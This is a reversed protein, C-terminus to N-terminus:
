VTVEPEWKKQEQLLKTRLGLADKKTKKTKKKQIKKKKRKKKKKKRQKKKKKELTIPKTPYKGTSGGVGKVVPKGFKRTKEGLKLLTSCQENLGTYNGRGGEKFNRYKPM